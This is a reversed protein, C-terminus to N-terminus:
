GRMRAVLRELESRMREKPAHFRAGHGPLVWEFAFDLLKAM